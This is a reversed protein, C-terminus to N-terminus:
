LSAALFANIMFLIPSKPNRTPIKMRPAIDAEKSNLSIELAKCSLVATEVEPHYEIAASQRKM